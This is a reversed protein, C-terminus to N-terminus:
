IREVFLGFFRLLTSKMRRAMPRGVTFEGTSLLYPFGIRFTVTFLHVTPFM